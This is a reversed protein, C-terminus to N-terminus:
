KVFFSWSMHQNFGHRLNSVHKEVFKNKFYM